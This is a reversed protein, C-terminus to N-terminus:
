FAPLAHHGIQEVRDCWNPDGHRDLRSSPLVNAMSLGLSLDLLRRVRSPDSVVRGVPPCLRSKAIPRKEVAAKVAPDSKVAPKVPKPKAAKKKAMTNLRGRRLNPTVWDSNCILDSLRGIPNRNRWFGAAVSYEGSPGLVTIWSAARGSVRFGRVLRPESYSQSDDAFLASPPLRVWVGLLPYPIKFGARRGNRWKPKSPPSM